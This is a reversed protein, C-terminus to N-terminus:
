QVGRRNGTSSVSLPVSLTHFSTGHALRSILDVLRLPALKAKWRLQSTGVKPMVSRRVGGQLEAAWGWASPWAASGAGKRANRLYSLPM